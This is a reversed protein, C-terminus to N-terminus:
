LRLICDKSAHRVVNLLTKGRHAHALSTYPLTNTHRHMHGHLSAALAAWPDIFHLYSNRYAELRMNEKNTSKCLLAQNELQIHRTQKSPIGNCEKWFLAYFFKDM